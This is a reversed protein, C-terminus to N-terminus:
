EEEQRKREDFSPKVLTTLQSDKPEPKKLGVRPVLGLCTVICMHTCVVENFSKNPCVSHYMGTM